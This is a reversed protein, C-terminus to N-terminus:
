EDQKGKPYPKIGYKLSKLVKKKFRKNGAFNIYRHKISREVRYVRDKYKNLLDQTRNNSGIFEQLLTQHHINEKGKVHFDSRKTTLGTYLFNTSQYVYGYHGQASDAFNVIISDNPLLKLSSGVLLSAENKKNNLLCLRNLELVNSEFERGAIGRRLTCSFPVGYTVIGVLKSGFLGDNKNILGYAYSIPPM